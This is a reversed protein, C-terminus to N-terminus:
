KLKKIVKDLPLTEQQGTKMNKLTVKNAKIEDPGIILVFPVGKKNAYKLQKDIGSQWNPYIETSINSNRLKSVATLSQQTSKQNFITVLITTTTKKTIVKSIKLAEILRDIGFSFGVAPLQRGSFRGILKDYRGGAGISLNKYGSVQLEFIIGTYYDLGRALYPLFRIKSTDAKMKKLNNKIKTISEPEPTLLFQRAWKKAQKPSTQKEKRFITTVEEGPFDDKKFAPPLKDLARIIKIEQINNQAFINRDNIFLLYDKFGLKEMCALICAILDADTLSYASGVTDIDAQWFERFRGAQPKDARWVPAIQYRKFPIPLENQYQTVVRSLPVTLDYRLGVERNGRDKFLYILKNAEDGYKNTLTKAYEIAPTELPSFGYVRFVKKLTNIVTERISASEPLFDRFGKPIQPMTKDAM